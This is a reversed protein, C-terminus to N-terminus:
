KRRAYQLNSEGIATNYGIFFPLARKKELSKYAAALDPQNYNKFLPLVRTFNGYLTLDWKSNDALYKYPIGSDDQVIYQAHDLMHTRILKYGPYACLYSAAKLFVNYDGFSDLFKFLEMKKELNPDWIDYSMYYVKREKALTSDTFAVEVGYPVKKGASVDTYNPKGSVTDITFHKISIINHGSRAMYYLIAHLTGNVMKQNFDVKMSNTRFFGHENSVGLTRFIAFLYNEKEAVSMKSFDPLSGAPELGILIYNEADPYFSNAYIFDAGAFPYFLTLNEKGGAIKEEKIWQRIPNLKGKVLQDYDKSTQSAYNRAIKDSVSDNFYQTRSMGAIFRAADTLYTDIAVKKVVPERVSDKVAVSDNTDKKEKSPKNGCAAASLVMAVSLGLALYKM